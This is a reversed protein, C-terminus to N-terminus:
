FKTMWNKFLEDKLDLQVIEDLQKNRIFMVIKVTERYLSTCMSASKWKM